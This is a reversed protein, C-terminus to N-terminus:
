ARSGAATGEPSRPSRRHRTDGSRWRGGASGRCPGHDRQDLHGDFVSGGIPHASEGEDCCRWDRPRITGKGERGLKPGKSQRVRDPMRLSMFWLAPSPSKSAVKMETKTASSPSLVCSAVIASEPSAGEARARM